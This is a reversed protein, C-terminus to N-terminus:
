LGLGLPDSRKQQPRPKPTIGGMPSRMGMKKKGYTTRINKRGSAIERLAKVKAIPKRKGKDSFWASFRKDARMISDWVLDAQQQQRPTLTDYANEVLWEEYERLMSDLKRPENKAWKFLRPDREFGETFDEMSRAMSNLQSWSFPKREARQVRPVPGGSAAQMQRFGEQKAMQQKQVMDHIQQVQQVQQGIASDLELTKMKYKAVLQADAKKFQETKLGSQGLADAEIKWQSKLHGIAQERQSNLQQISDQYAM